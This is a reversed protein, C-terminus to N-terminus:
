HLRLGHVQGRAGPRRPRAAGGAAGASVAAVEAQPRRQAAGAGHRLVGRGQDCGTVYWFIKKAVVKFIKKQADVSIFHLHYFTYLLKM